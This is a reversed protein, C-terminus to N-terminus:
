NTSSEATKNWQYDNNKRKNVIQEMFTCIQHAIHYSQYSVMFDPHQEVQQFAKKQLDEDLSDYSWIVEWASNVAKGYDSM